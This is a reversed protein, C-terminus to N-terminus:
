NPYKKFVSSFKFKRILNLVAVPNENRTSTGYGSPHSTLAAESFAHALAIVCMGGVWGCM